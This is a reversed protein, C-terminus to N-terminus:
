LCGLLLGLAEQVLAAVLVQLFAKSAVGVVVLLSL